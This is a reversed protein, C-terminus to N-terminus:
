KTKYVYSPQVPKFGRPLSLLNTGTNPDSTSFFDLSRDAPDLLLYGLIPDGATGLLLSSSLIGGTPVRTGDSIVNGSEDLVSITFRTQTPARIVALRGGGVKPRTIPYAKFFRKTLFSSFVTGDFGIVTIKDRTDGNSSRLLLEDLGDGNVDMCGIPKAGSPAKGSTAVAKPNTVPAAFILENSFLAVSTVGVALFKCGVLLTDGRTGFVFERPSSESSLQVNWVLDTGSRRVTAYDWKGDGDYNGPAPVSGALSVNVSRDSNSERNRFNLSSGVQGYSVLDSVGDGDFDLPAGSTTTFTRVSPLTTIRGVPDTSTIQLTHVGLALPGPHTYEWNGSSDATATGIDTGDVNIVIAAAPYSKGKFLTDQQLSGRLPRELTPTIAVPTNTPTATPTRTSTPTPTATLTFAVTPTPTPTVMPTPTPTLTPTNTPTNTPTPTPTNTPVNTPTDTQTPTETPTATPTETPTPSPTPTPTAGIFTNVTALNDSPDPDGSQNGVVLFDNQLNGTFMSDVNLVISIDNAPGVALAAMSCSILGGASGCSWGTGSASVYSAGMPILDQVEVGLATDPGGNAVNVTYTIDDGPDAASPSGTASISLDASITSFLQGFIEFENDVLPSTNDDGLWATLTSNTNGNYATDPAGVSYATSGNPGMDSLRARPGTITGNAAVVQGFVEYEDDVLPSTDDDASWTVFYNHEVGNYVVSPQLTTNYNTDSDPGMHSIRINGNLISGDSQLVSGFIEFEDDVLGSGSSDGAWVVLYDNDFTNCAVSPTRGVYNSNGDPGMQSIQFKSGLFSVSGGDIRQGWIELQDDGNPAVSDDAEWVVLYVDDVANYAVSPFGAGYATNGDPGMQSIRFQGGAPAPTDDYVRGYIEYEGAVLSGSNDDGVWVVLYGPHSMNGNYVVAPRTATYSADNDPGMASIRFKGGVLSGTNSVVQGYIEFEGDALAGGQPDDASWVVLFRDMAPNFTLAPTDASFATSTDDTGTTSIRFRSGVLAGSTGNVRQGWIEFKVPVLSGSNDSGSWVVLYEDDIFNYSVSPEFANYSINGDPGMSSIRQDNPGIEPDVIVPYAASELAKGDIEISSQEADVNMRAPIKKNNADLVTVDGLYFSTTGKKWRPHNIGSEFKGNSIIEGVIILPEGNLALKQPIIFQQEVSTKKFIYREQIGGRDYLITKYDIQQAKVPATTVGQVAAVNKRHIRKLNWRWSLNGHPSSFAPGSNEFLTSYRPHSLSIGKRNPTVRNLAKITAEEEAIKARRSPVANPAMKFSASARMDSPEAVPLSIAPTHMPAFRMGFSIALIAVLSVKAMRMSLTKLRSREIRMIQSSWNSIKM